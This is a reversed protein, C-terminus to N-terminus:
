NRKAATELASKTNGTLVEVVQAAVGRNTELVNGVTLNVLVFQTGSAVVAEVKGRIM